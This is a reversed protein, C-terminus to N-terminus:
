SVPLKGHWELACKSSSLILQHPLVIIIPTWPSFAANVCNRTTTKGWQCSEVDSWYVNAPLPGWSIRYCYSTIPMRPSFAASVRNWPTIKKQAKEHILLNHVCVNVFAYIQLVCIAFLFTWFNLVSCHYAFAAWPWLWLVFIQFFSIVM